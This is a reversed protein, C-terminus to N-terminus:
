HEIKGPVLGLVIHYMDPNRVMWSKNSFFRFLYIIDYDNRSVIRCDPLRPKTATILIKPLMMLAKPLPMDM